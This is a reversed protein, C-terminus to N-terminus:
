PTTGELVPEGGVKEWFEDRRNTRPFDTEPVPASLHRCLPAWGQAVNFILLRDAPVIERVLANNRRYGAIASDRTIKGGFHHKVILTNMAEFHEVMSPPLGMIPFVDMFKGITRSFSQWWEDEPRETHIVKADPFAILTQRWVAAGPWDVQASYGDFVTEWDVDVGAAISRWIAHQREDELLEHMHHCPGFGLEELALKLSLTGTRGFGTGIVQLSM